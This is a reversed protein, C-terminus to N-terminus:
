GILVMYFMSLVTFLALRWGASLFALVAFAAITAPWPLWQLLDQIWSMPWKLVWSFAKFLGQFHAVFWEMFHNIWLAVPVTWRDPYSEIWEVHGRLAFCGAVVAIVVAWVVLDREIPPRSPNSIVSPNASM